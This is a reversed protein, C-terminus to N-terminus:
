KICNPESNTIKSGLTSKCKNQNYYIACVAFCICTLTGCILGFM